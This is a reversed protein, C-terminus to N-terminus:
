EIPTDLSLKDVKKDLSSINQNIQQGIRDNDKGIKSLHNEHDAYFRKVKTQINDLVVLAYILVGLTIVILIISVFLM